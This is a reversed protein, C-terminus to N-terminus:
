LEASFLDNNSIIAASYGATSTAGTLTLLGSNVSQQNQSPTVSTSGGNYFATATGATYTPTARMTVPFIITALIQTSTYFGGNYPVSSGFKYAYRQCLAL